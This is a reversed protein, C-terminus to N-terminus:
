EGLPIACLTRGDIAKRVKRAYAPSRGFKNMLGVHLKNIVPPEYAEM